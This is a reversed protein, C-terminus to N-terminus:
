ELGGHGPELEDQELEEQELGGDPIADNVLDRIEEEAQLVVESPDAEGVEEDNDILAANVDAEEVDNLGDEAEELGDEADELGNEADELAPLPDEAHNDGIPLPRRAAKQFFRELNAQKAPPGGDHQQKRKWAARERAKRQEEKWADLEAQAGNWFIRPNNEILDPGLEEICLKAAPTFDELMSDLSVLRYLKYSLPGDLNWSEVADVESICQFKTTGPVFVPKVTQRGWALRTDWAMRVFTPRRPRFYMMAISYLNAEVEVILWSGQILSRMESGKPCLRAVSAAFARKALHMVFGRGSCLCRGHGYTSCHTPRFGQPTCSVSACDAAKVVYHEKEWLALAPLLFTGRSDGILSVRRAAFELAGMDVKVTITDPLADCKAVRLPMNYPPLKIDAFDM